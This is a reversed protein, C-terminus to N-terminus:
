KVILSFGKEAVGGLSDTVRFTLPFTGAQTPVGSISGTAADLDLGLPLTGAVLSWTYSAKGGEVKLTKLYPDATLGKKLSLSTIKPRAFIRISFTKRVYSGHELVEVTFRSSMAKATPVGSITGTHDITLGTPLSGSFIRVTYPAGPPNVNLSANYAIGREGDHLSAAEISFPAVNTRILRTNDGVIVGIGPVVFLGPYSDNQGSIKVTGLLAITDFVGAPVSVRDQRKMQFLASYPLEMVGIGPLPNSRVTGFSVVSHGLEVVRNTLRLPPDFTFTVNASEGNRLRVNPQSTRHLRLGDDDASYYEKYNNSDQFIRTAVDNILKTEGLVTVTLKKRVAYQYTWTDGPEARFLDAATFVDSEPPVPEDRVVIRTLATDTDGLDNEAVFGINFTGSQGDAPTWAFVGTNNGLDAFSAGFPLDTPTLTLDQGNIETGSITFNLSEGVEVSRQGPASLTVIPNIRIEGTLAAFDNECHQEFTASFSEITNNAGYRLERVEFRGQLYYCGRTNGFVSL